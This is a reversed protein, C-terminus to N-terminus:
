RGRTIPLYFQNVYDALMRRTSFRAPLTRFAQRARSLWAQDAGAPQSAYWAPVVQHELVDWLFASDRRDQEFTDHPVQDDGIAFGNHGNYGEAWWGDLISANVGGHMSVKQGSTGSAERPRRPTNLWVDVGSVLARAVAMDYNELFLVRGRIRPDRSAQVVRQIVEKGPADSPHAKGAFLIQVPRDQDAILAAAREMDHFLMDGRKYTAFRRAFGITLVDTRWNALAGVAWPVDPGFIPQFALLRQRLTDFLDRKLTRRLQVLEDDTFRDSVEAWADERYLTRAWDPGARDEVMARLAPHMFTEVHIGNTVHGVPIEHRPRGPWLGQWMERTVEGHLASVANICRAGKMALVTMCFPEEAHHPNERGLGLFTFADIGLQHQLRWLMMQTLDPAFRDHGAPVPTHTTFLCSARVKELAEGFGMGAERHERMLELIAFACHGENLHYVTPVLGLARLLRVGGVGLVIEQRIRTESGGSYLRGGIGRDEANNQAVNTDLLYLTIRGVAMQWVQAFVTRDAIPFDILVPAGGRSVLTAPVHEWETGPFAEVQQGAENITQQFYGEPYKLGIAVFPLGIDSASKIHDGALVGLGGSYLPLSEHMGFEACFYAVLGRRLDPAHDRVWTDPRGMYHHFAEGVADLQALADDTAFAAQLKEESSQRLVKLPSHNTDEWAQPDIRQFLARASPNWTWWLNGALTQLRARLNM